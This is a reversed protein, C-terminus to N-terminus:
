SKYEWFTVHGSDMQWLNTCAKYQTDINMKCFHKINAM